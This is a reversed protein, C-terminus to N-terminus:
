TYQEPDDEFSERCGEGCFQYTTGEYETEAPPDNEDVDMDCVPCQAM